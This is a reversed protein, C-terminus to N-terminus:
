LGLPWGHPLFLSAIAGLAIAPGFGFPADWRRTMLAWGVGMVLGIVSAAIITHLVGWVGVFAGVMALLKVDGLGLGPFWLWYDAESPKPLDEGEGPWHAFQRGTAVSVRAHLFAVSWLAGGGVLAGLASQLLADTYPVGAATRALPMAVLGVALGGLSIEDPIIQHDIDVGAAAILGASWLMILLAQWTPGLQWVIAVFVLGTLLEVAPYRLSIHTKCHRCRGRLVLYSLVPVNDYPAIPNDCGPCHSPPHVVSEGLPLRHIVVNLFSGIVMGFLLACVYLFSYFTPEVAHSM